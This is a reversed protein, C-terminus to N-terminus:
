GQTLAAPSRSASASGAASISPLTRSFVNKLEHFYPEPELPSQEEWEKAEFYFGKRAISAQQFTWSSAPPLMGIGSFLTRNELTCGCSIFEALGDPDISRLESRVALIAKAEAAFYFLTRARTITSM